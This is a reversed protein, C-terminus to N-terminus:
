AAAGELPMVADVVFGGAPLPGAELHGGFMTVRERLGVLGQGGGELPTARGGNRGSDAVEIELADDAYRVAM